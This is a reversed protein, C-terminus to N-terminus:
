SVAELLHNSQEPQSTFYPLTITFKTGLGRKNQLKIKGNNSIISTKVIDMGIGQGALENAQDTTSLGPEFILSVIRRSDMSELKEKTLLNNEIARTKVKEVDIGAGDDQYTLELTKNDILSLHCDIRAVLPKQSLERDHTTEIGHAFTNRILQIIISSILKQTDYNLSIEDLGSSALICPKQTQSSLDNSYERFKNNIKLSTTNTNSKEQTMKVLKPVFESISKTYQMLANLKVALALFDNGSLIPNHSLLKLETEFDHAMKSFKHLNLSQAEGKFNHIIRFIQEAKLKLSSVSSDQAKLLDNIKNFSVFADDIFEKVLDSNTHIISSFMELQENEQERLQELTKELLIKDTIDSVTVLIHQIKNHKYVRSFDFSLFKNSYVSQKNEINVEILNLPNLDRILKEKIKPNFLINVFGETTEIEKRSVMNSILDSFNKGSIENLELIDILQKSYQSGIELKHDILFLGEKVTDLIETTEQRAAEVIEDSERLQRVFHFLIIFFNLIALSIGVTQIIRLKIAQNSATQELDVTLTNMLGLINLNDTKAFAIAMPLLDYNVTDNDVSRLISKYFPTWLIKAENISQQSVRTKVASLNISQGDTNITEGGESFATLTKDFLSVTTLLENQVTKIRQEDGKISQLEYLSKATKQSLMRQRGAINVAQADDSISFSLYFNLILVSADLMIFLAVSILIGKYKGINFPKKNM